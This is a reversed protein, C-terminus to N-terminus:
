LETVLGQQLPIAPRWSDRNGGAPSVMACGPRSEPLLATKDVRSSTSPTTRPFHGIIKKGKPKRCTCQSLFHSCCCPTLTATPGRLFCFFDFGCLQPMAPFRRYDGIFYFCLLSTSIAVWCFFFFHVLIVFSFSLLSTNEIGVLEAATALPRSSLTSNDPISPPPVPSNLSM